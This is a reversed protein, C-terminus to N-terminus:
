PLPSEPEKGAQPPAEIGVQTVETSDENAKAALKAARRRRLYRALWFLPLPLLPALILLAYSGWRYPILAKRLALVMLPAYLEDAFHAALEERTVEQPRGARDAALTLDLSRKLIRIAGKGASRKAERELGYEIVFSIGEKLMTRGLGPGEGEPVPGMFEDVAEGFTEAGAKQPMREALGEVRALALPTGQQFAELEDVPLEFLVESAIPGFPEGKTRAELEAKAAATQRESVIVLYYSFDAMPGGAKTLAAHAQEGETLFSEIGNALGLCGGAVSGALTTLAVILLAALRRLWRAWKWDWDYGGTRKVLFYGAIGLFFGVVSGVVVYGVTSFVIDLFHTKLITDGIGGKECGALLLCFVILLWRRM